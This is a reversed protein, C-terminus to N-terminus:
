EKNYILCKLRHKAFSNHSTPHPFPFPHIAIILHTTFLPHSLYLIVRSPDSIIERDWEGPSAEGTRLTDLTCTPRNCNCLPGLYFALLKQPFWQRELGELHEFSAHDPHYLMTGMGTAMEKYKQSM